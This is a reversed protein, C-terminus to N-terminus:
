SIRKFKKEIEYTSILWSTPRGHPCTLKHELLYLDNLLQEMQLHNLVDGAKVATRCAMMSHTKKTILTYFEKKDTREHENILAIIEKILEQININKSHIPMGTIKIQTNGFQEFEIGQEKFFKEHAIAISLENKTLIIIEPFMLSITSISNFNNSFKEFLVAEHAAHQDVLMLGEDTQLLIYTKNLQGIINFNATKECVTINEFNINSDSKKNIPDKDKQESFINEFNINQESNKVEIDIKKPESFIEELDQYSKKQKLNEQAFINDAFKVTEFRYPESKVFSYNIPNNTNVTHNKPTPLITEQLKQKVSKEILQEIINAQLFLVDEKKPHVNIDILDSDITIDIISAPYRAPPLVNSYGKLISQNLKYNKIWRKNVLTIIQSRDYRIYHRDSIAGTIKIKDGSGMIPLLSLTLQHDYIQAARQTIDIVSPCNQTREGNHFLQMSINPYALAIIQFFQLCNRYETNTTKLFKRRAPINYFLEHITIETGTNCAIEKETIIKGNEIILNIGTIDTNQKTTIQVKSVSCISSLAEGRFGFTTIKNLDNVTEIKSTAHHVISMRSDELSMGYGNDIVKILAKGGDELFVTIESAGADISNELLEKLANAPREVVEGAAIKQAEVASLQKIKGM